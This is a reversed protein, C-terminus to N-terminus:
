EKQYRYKGSGFMGSRLRFDGFGSADEFTFSHNNQYIWRVIRSIGNPSMFRETTLPEGYVIFVRGMDTLWGENYSKFRKNAEDVRGFYEDFAENKLTGPTPDLGKWFEEFLTLSEGESPANLIADIQDQDAVYILQKTAKKLDAVVDGALTRPIIYARNVTADIVTTDSSGDALVPHANIRLTYTGPLLRQEVTLPFFSQTAVRECRVVDSQGEAARRGDSRTLSWHYRLSRAQGSLYVELFVFLPTDTLWVVDGVFPTIAYRNGRQEVQSVYMPTSLEVHSINYEPVKVTRSSVNDRRGFVDSILVEVTYSGPRLAFRRVSNDSKGTAGRAVAYSEETISRRYSTDVLRTGLTDRITISVSYEALMKRDHATFQLVQYPVAVYVDCRAPAGISTGRLSIVDTLVRPTAADPAQQALCPLPALAAAALTIIVSTPKMVTM